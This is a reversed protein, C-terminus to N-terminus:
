ATYRKYFWPLREIDNPEFSTVVRPDNAPKDWSDWPPAYSTLRHLEQTPTAV